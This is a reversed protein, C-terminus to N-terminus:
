TAPGDPDAPLQDALTAIVGAWDGPARQRVLRASPYWPTRDSDWRTYWDAAPRPLMIWCPKGLAGALHAVSTDVTVVGAMAGMIVATDAFDRAGTMEPAVDAFSRLGRIAAAVGPGPLRDNNPNRLGGELMLGLGRGPASASAVDLTPAPADDPGAELWRPVSGLSAWVDAEVGEFTPPPSKLVTAPLQEFLRELPRAVALSVKGAIQALLPIFRSWLIQDGLGQEAVVLIHKGTLPEGQWEPLPATPRHLLQHRAEYFRWGEAYSGRQLLVMGLTHRVLLNGPAARHAERLVAEAEELRGTKRLLVGLNGLTMDPRWAAARRYCAEAEELRGAKQHAVGERFISEM